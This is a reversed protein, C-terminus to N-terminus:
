DELDSRMKWLKSYRKKLKLYTRLLKIGFFALLIIIFFYSILGFLVGENLFDRPILFTWMLINHLPYIILGLLLLGSYKYLSISSTLDKVLNKADEWLENYLDKLSSFEEESM